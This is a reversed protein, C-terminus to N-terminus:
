RVGGLESVQERLREVEAEAKEAVAEAVRYRERILRAACEDLAEGPERVPRMTADVRDLLDQAVDGLAAVEELLAALREVRSQHPLEIQGLWERAKEVWQESM